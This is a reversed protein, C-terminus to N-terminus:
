NPNELTVGCCLRVLRDLCVLFSRHEALFFTKSSLLTLPKLERDSRDTLNSTLAGEAKMPTTYLLEDKFRALLWRGKDFWLQFSVREAARGQIAAKVRAKVIQFCMM